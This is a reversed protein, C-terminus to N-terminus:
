EINDRNNCQINNAPHYKQLITPLDHELHKKLNTIEQELRVIDKVLYEKEINALQENFATNYSKLTMFYNAIALSISLIALGIIIFTKLDLIIPQAIFPTLAIFIPITFASLIGGIPLKPPKFTHHQENVTNM